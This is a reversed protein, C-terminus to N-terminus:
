LEYGFSETKKNKEKYHRYILYAGGLAVIVSVGLAVYLITKNSSDKKQGEAEFMFSENSIVAQSSSKFQAPIDVNNNVTGQKELVYM